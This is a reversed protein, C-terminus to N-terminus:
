LGAWSKKAEAKVVDIVSTGKCNDIAIRIAEDCRDIHKAHRFITGDSFNIIWFRESM